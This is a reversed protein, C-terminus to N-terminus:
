FTFAYYSNCLLLGRSKKLIANVRSMEEMVYVSECKGSHNRGLNFAFIWMGDGSILVAMM